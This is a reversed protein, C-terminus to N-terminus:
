IQGMRCWIYACLLYRLTSSTDGSDRSKAHQKILKLIRTQEHIKWFLEVFVYESEEEKRLIQRSERNIGSWRKVPQMAM